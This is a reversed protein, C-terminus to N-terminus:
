REQRTEHYVRDIVSRVRSRDSESAHLLVFWFRDLLERTEDPNMGPTLRKPEQGQMIWEYRLNYHRGIKEAWASPFRSRKKAGSVSSQRIGLFRALQEQTQLDTELRIRNFADKFGM